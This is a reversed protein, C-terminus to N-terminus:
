KRGKALNLFDGFTVAGQPKALAATLAVAADNINRQTLDPIIRQCAQLGSLIGARHTDSVEPKGAQEAMANVAGRLIRMDPTEPDMHQANAAGLVVFFVAGSSQVLNHSDDGMMAHINADLKTRHWQAAILARAVPNVVPREPARPAM